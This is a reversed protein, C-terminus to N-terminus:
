LLKNLLNIHLTFFFQVSSETSDSSRSVHVPQLYILHSQMCVNAASCKPNLRILLILRNVVGRQLIVIINIERCTRM